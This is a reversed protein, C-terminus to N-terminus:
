FGFGDGHRHAVTKNFLEASVKQIRILGGNKFLPLDSHEFNHERTM